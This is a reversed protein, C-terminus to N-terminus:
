FDIGLRFTFFADTYHKRGLYRIEFLPSSPDRAIDFKYIESTRGRLTLGVGINLGLKRGWNFRHGVTPAFYVGGGDTLNYGIRIDGFPRFRNFSRDYRFDLFVPFTCDLSPLGYAVLIGAGVFINKNIQYGHSTSWGLVWQVDKEDRGTSHDFYPMSGISNDWDFFGRYGRQPDRAYTLLSAIAIAFIAAFVRKM